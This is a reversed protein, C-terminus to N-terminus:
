TYTILYCDSDIYMTCRCIEPKYINKLLARNLSNAGIYELKLKYMFNRIQNIITKNTHNISYNM